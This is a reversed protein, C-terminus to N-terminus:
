HASFVNIDCNVHSHDGPLQWVDHTLVQEVLGIAKLVNDTNDYSHYSDLHLGCRQVSYGEGFPLSAAVMVHPWLESNFIYALVLSFCTM